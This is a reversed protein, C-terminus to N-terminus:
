KVIKRNLAVSLKHNIELSPILLLVFERLKMKLSAEIHANTTEHNIISIGANKWHSFEDKVWAQITKRGFLICESCFVKNLSPSWTLWNKKTKTGDTHTRYYWGAHSNRGEKDKLFEKNPLVDCTARVHDENWM